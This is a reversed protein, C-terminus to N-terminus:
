DLERRKLRLKYAEVKSLVKDGPILPELSDDSRRNRHNDSKIKDIKNDFDHGLLSQQLDEM